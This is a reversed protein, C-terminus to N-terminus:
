SITLNFKLVGFNICECSPIPTYKKLSEGTKYTLKSRIKQFINNICYQYYKTAESINGQLYLNISQNILQETSPKNKNNPKKKSKYPDGFSKM